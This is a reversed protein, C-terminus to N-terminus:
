RYINVIFLEIIINTTPKSQKRIARWQKPSPFVSSLCHKCRNCLFDHFRVCVSELGDQFYICIYSLMYLAIYLIIYGPDSVFMHSVTSQLSSYSDRLRREEIYGRNSTEPFFAMSMAPLVERIKSQANSVSCCAKPAVSFTYYTLMPLNWSAISLHLSTLLINSISHISFTLPITLHHCTPLQNLHKALLAASNTAQLEAPKTFTIADELQPLVSSCLVDLQPLVSSCLVDLQPLVSSCLVDVPKCSKKNPTLKQSSALMDQFGVLMCIPYLM